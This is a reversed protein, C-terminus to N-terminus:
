LKNSQAAWTNWRAEASNIEGNPTETSAKPTAARNILRDSVAAKFVLPTNWGLQASQQILQEIEDSSLEINYQQALSKLENAASQIQQTLQQQQIYQEMQQLRSDYPNIEQPEATGYGFHENLQRLTEAPDAELAAWLQQAPHNSMESKAKDVRSQLTRRLQEAQAQYEPPFSRILEGVESGEQIPEAPIPDQPVPDVVPQETPTPEPLAQGAEAAILADFPNDM